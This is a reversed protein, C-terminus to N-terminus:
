QFTQQVSRSMSIYASLQDYAQIQKKAMAIALEQANAKKKEVGETSVRELMSPLEALDDFFFGCDRFMFYTDSNKSGYFMLASGACVASVAKSPVSIHTWESLLSVLHIDILQLHQREVKQILQVHEIGKEQLFIEVEERGEGYLALIITYEKVLDRNSLLDILFKKSHARGLNGLYGIYKEGTQYWVPYHASAQVDSPLIGCPLVVSPVLQKYKGSLYELQKEGLAILMSPPSNYVVRDILRYILRSKDIIGSALLADPFLDFAWYIWRETRLLLACWFSILPPNTLTIYCAANLAKAKLVMRLGDVLGGLFLLYKNKGRYLEKVKHILFLSHQHEPRPYDKKYHSNLTVVHIDLNPDRERLARLLEWSSTSDVSNDPVFYKSILVLKMLDHGFHNPEM